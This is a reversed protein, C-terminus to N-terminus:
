EWTGYRQLASRHNDAKVSLDVNKQATALESAKALDAIAPELQDTMAEIQARVYYAYPENPNVALAGNVIELAKAYNKVGRAYALALDSQYIPESESAKQALGQFTDAKATDGVAEYLVSMTALSLADMTRGTDKAKEYYGLIVQPEGGKTLSEEALALNANYAQTAPDAAAARDYLVKGTIGGAILVFAVVAIIITWKRKREGAYEGTWWWWAKKEPDQARREDVAEKNKAFTKAILRSNLKFNGDVTELRTREPTINLGQEQLKALGEEVEDRLKLLELVADRRVKLQGAGDELKSLKERVETALGGIRQEVVGKPM